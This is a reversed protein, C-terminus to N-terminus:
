PTYMMNFADHNSGDKRLYSLLPLHSMLALQFRFRILKGETWENGHSVKRLSGTHLWFALTNHVLRYDSLPLVHCILTGFNSQENIPILRWFFNIVWMLGQCPQNDLGFFDLWGLLSFVAHYIWSSLFGCFLFRWLCHMVYPSWMCLLWLWAWAQSCGSSMHHSPSCCRTEYCQNYLSAIFKLMVLQIAKM